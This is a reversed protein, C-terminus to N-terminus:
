RTGLKRVPNAFLQTIVFYGRNTVAISIGTSTWQTSELAERSNKDKLILEFLENAIDFNKAKHWMVNEDIYLGLKNYAISKRKFSGQHLINSIQQGEEIKSVLYQSNEMAIPKLEPILNLPTVGIKKRHENTLAFIKTSLVLERVNESRVNKILTRDETGINCSAIFLTICIIISKKM